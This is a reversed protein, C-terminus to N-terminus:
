WIEDYGMCVGWWWVHGGGGPMGGVVCAGGCGHVGRLWACGRCGRM